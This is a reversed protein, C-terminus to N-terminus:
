GSSMMTVLPLTLPQQSSRYYEIELGKQRDNLFLPSGIQSEKPTNRKAVSEGTGHLALLKHNAHRPLSVPKGLSIDLRESQKSKKQIEIGSVTYTAYGERLKREARKSDRATNGM